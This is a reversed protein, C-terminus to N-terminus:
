DIWFTGCTECKNGCPYDNSYPKDGKHRNWNMDGFTCTKTEKWHKELRAERKQAESTEPMLRIAGRKQTHQTWIEAEPYSSKCQGAIEGWGYGNGKAEDLFFNDIFAQRPISLTFCGKDGLWNSGQVRDITSFMAGSITIYVKKDSNWIAQYIDEVDAYFYFSVPAGYFQENIVSEIEKVQEPTKAYKKILGAKNNRSEESYDPTEIYCLQRGTHKLLEKIPNSTDHNQLWEHMAESVEDSVSECDKVEHYNRVIQQMSEYSGDDGQDFFDDNEGKLVDQLQGIDEFCDRYDVYVLEVGRPYENSLWELADPVSTLVKETTTKEITKM